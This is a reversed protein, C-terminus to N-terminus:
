HAAGAPRPLVGGSVTVQIFRGGLTQGNLLRSARRAEDRAPMEVLGYRHTRHGAEEAFLKVKTVEGYRRFVRALTEPKASAPLNGVYVTTM